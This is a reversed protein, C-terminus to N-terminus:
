TTELGITYEDRHGDILNIDSVKLSRKDGGRGIVVIRDENVLKM